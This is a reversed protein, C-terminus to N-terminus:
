KDGGGQNTWTFAVTLGKGSVKIKYHSQLYQAYRNRLEEEGKPFVINVRLNLYEYKTYGPTFGNIRLNGIFSTGKEGEIDVENVPNNDCYAYLNATAGTKDVHYSSDDKSIFREYDPNYLIMIKQSM